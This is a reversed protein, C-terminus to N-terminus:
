IPKGDEWSRTSGVADWITAGLELIGKGVISRGTKRGVGAAGGGRGDRWGRCGRTGEGGWRARILAGGGGVHVAEAGGRLRGGGLRGGDGNIAPRGLEWAV